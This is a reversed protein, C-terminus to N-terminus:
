LTRFSRIVGTADERRLALGLSEGRAPEQLRLLLLAFVFTPLALVVFAVRWDAVATIAGALPGAVLNIASYAVLYWGFVIPLVKPKYWDSLLSPHTPTNVTYGIGGALRAVILVATAPALGTLIATVGWVLASAAALHVRNLRDSLYGAHATVLLPLVSTLTAISIYGASSLHFQDRIEPGLVGFANADFREVGSLALLVLLPTLGAAGAVERLSLLSRFVGPTGSGAADMPPLPGMASVAHERRGDNKRSM